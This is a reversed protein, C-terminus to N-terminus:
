VQRHALDLAQPTGVPGTASFGEHGFPAALRAVVAQRCRHLILGALQDRLAVGVEAGGQGMLLQGFDM